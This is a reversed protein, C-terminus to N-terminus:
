MGSAVSPMASSYWSGEEDARGEAGRDHLADVRIPGGITDAHTPVLLLDIIEPLHAIRKAAATSLLNSIAVDMMARFWGSKTHFHPWYAMAKAGTPQPPQQDLAM